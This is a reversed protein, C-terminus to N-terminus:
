QVTSLFVLRDSVHQRTRGDDRIRSESLEHRSPPTRRRDHRELLAVVTGTYIASLCDSPPGNQPIKRAALTIEGVRMRQGSPTARRVRAPWWWSIKPFRHRLVRSASLPKGSRVWRFTASGNPVHPFHFENTGHAATAHHGGVNRGVDRHAATVVARDHEGDLAYRGSRGLSCPAAPCPSRLM